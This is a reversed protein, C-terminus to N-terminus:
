FSIVYYVYYVYYDPMSKVVGFAIGGAILAYLFSYGFVKGYNVVRKTADTPDVDSMYQPKSLGVLLSVVFVLLPLGALFVFASTPGVQQKKLNDLSM